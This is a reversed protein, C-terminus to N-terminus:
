SDARERFTTPTLDFKKKFLRNFSSIDSFGWRYAVSSIPDSRHQPSLLDSAVRDLRRKAIYSGFSDGSRAFLQHLYRNSISFANAVATPSLDEFALHRDLFDLIEEFLRQSRLMSRGFLPEQESRSATAAVLPLCADCLAALEDRPLNLLNDSIFSLCTTLPRNLQDGPTLLKGISDKGTPLAEVHQTPFFLLISSQGADQTPYSIRSPRRTDFIVLDGPRAVEIAGDQEVVLEGDTMYVVQYGEIQSHSVHRSSRDYVHPVARVGAISVDDDLYAIEIRAAFKGDGPELAVPFDSRLAGERFYEFPDCCSIDRTDRVM